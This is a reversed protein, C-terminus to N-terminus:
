AGPGAKGGTRPDRNEGEARPLFVAERFWSIQTRFGRSVPHELDTELGFAQGIGDIRSAFRPPLSVLRHLGGGERRALIPGPFSRAVVLDSAPLPLTVAPLWPLPRAHFEPEGTVGLRLVGRSRVPLGGAPRGLFARLVSAPSVPGPERRLLWDVMATSGYFTLRWAWGFSRLALWIVLLAVALGLWPNLWASAAVAVLLGARGLRMLIDLTASPSLLILINVAHSVLWVCFFLALAGASALAPWLWDAGPFGAAVLEPGGAIATTQRFHALVLEVLVPTALIGSVNNELVEALDLPKKSGPLAMLVPEKFALAAVVLLAPGWFWPHAYWPVAGRLEPPTHWYRWAGTAAVGLLPSIAMGTTASITEALAVGPPLAPAPAPAPGARLPAAAALVLAAAFLVLRAQSMPPKPNPRPKENIWAYDM